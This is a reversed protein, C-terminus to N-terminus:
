KEWLDVEERYVKIFHPMEEYGDYYELLIEENSLKITSLKYNKEFKKIKEIIDDTAKHKIENLIENKLKKAKSSIEVYSKVKKSFEM